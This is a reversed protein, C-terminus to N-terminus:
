EPEPKERERVGGVGAGEDRHRVGVAVPGTNLLFFEGWARQKTLLGEAECRGRIVRGDGTLIGRMDVRPTEREFDELTLTIRGAELTGSTIVLMNMSSIIEGGVPWREITLPGGGWLTLDDQELSLELAFLVVMDHSVTIPEGSTSSVTLPTGQKLYHWAYGKWEGTVQATGEPQRPQALSPIVVRQNLDALEAQLHTVAVTLAQVQELLQQLVSGVAATAQPQPAQAMGPFPGQGGAQDDEEGQGPPLRRDQIDQLSIELAAALKELHGLLPNTRKDHEIDSLYGKRVGAREALQTANLGRFVRWARIVAGIARKSTATTQAMANRDELRM